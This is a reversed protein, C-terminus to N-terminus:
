FEAAFAVLWGPMADAFAAELPHDIGALIAAGVGVLAVGFAAKGVMASRGVMLRGRAALRGLGYGAALLSLAAGLAFISMTAMAMPLSGGSAALAFAAGLSPGACPAWAFALAAGAAAQGALGASPLRRSIADGWGALASLLHESTASLMPILIVLGAVLLIAAAIARLAPADGLEVGLSALLGGGLGFAIALGLALALPGRPDQTRAGAVIIPALPLVCPSLIALLGAVFALFLITV